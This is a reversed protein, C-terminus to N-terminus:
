LNYYYNEQGKKGNHIADILSLECSGSLTFIIRIYKDVRNRVRIKMVRKDNISDSAKNFEKSLEVNELIMKSLENNTYKKNGINSVLLGELVEIIITGYGFDIQPSKIEPNDKIEVLNNERIYKYLKLKAAYTFETDVESMIIKYKCYLSFDVQILTYTNIHNKHDYNSLILIDNNICPISTMERDNYYVVDSNIDPNKYLCIVKKTYGNNKFDKLFNIREYRNTAPIRVDEQKSKNFIKM